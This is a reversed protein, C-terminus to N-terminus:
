KSFVRTLTTLSVGILTDDKYCATTHISTFGVLWLLISPPTIVMMMMMMMVVEMREVVIVAM